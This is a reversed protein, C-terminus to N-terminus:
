QRPFSVYITDPKLDRFAVRLRNAVVDYQLGEDEEEYNKASALVEPSGANRFSGEPPLVIEIQYALSKQCSRRPTRWKM